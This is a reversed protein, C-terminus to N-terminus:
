PRAEPSWPIRPMPTWLRGHAAFSYVRHDIATEEIGRERLRRWERLGAPTAVKVHSGYLLIPPLSQRVAPGAQTAQHM